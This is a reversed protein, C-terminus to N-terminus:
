ARGACGCRRVAWGAHGNHGRPARTWRMGSDGARVGCLGDLEAAVGGGADREFGRFWDRGPREPPAM